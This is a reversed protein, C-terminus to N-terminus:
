ATVGQKNPMGAWMLTEDEGPQDRIPRLNRDLVVRESQHLLFGQGSRVPISHGAVVWAAGRMSPKYILGGVLEGAACLRVVEVVMGNAEPTIAMNRMYALDGAKCNLKMEDGQQIKTRDKGAM